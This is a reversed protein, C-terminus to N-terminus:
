RKIAIFRQVVNMLEDLHAEAGEPQRAADMVCGKLHDELVGLAVKDLAARVASIQTLIDVCYKEEDVMKQIGRVQGEIRVLRDRLDEKRYGYSGQPSERDAQDIGM